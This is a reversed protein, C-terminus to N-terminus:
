TEMAVLFVVLFLVAVVAVSGELILLAMLIRRRRPRRITRNNLDIVNGKRRM